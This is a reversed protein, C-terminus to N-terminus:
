KEEKAKLQKSIGELIKNGNKASAAWAHLSDLLNFNNSKSLTVLLTTGLVVEYSVEDFEIIKADLAKKLIAKNKTDDSKVRAVFAEPESRAFEKIQPHLVEWEEDQNWGMSAAFERGEPEKIDRAAELAARLKEIKDSTTQAKEKKSVIEFKVPVSADACPSGKREPSLWLVEYLDRDSAISSQLSFLGNFHMEGAGAVFCVAKTPKNDETWDEALVIDINKKSFPDRVRFQTRLQTKGFLVPLKARETPDPEPNSVGNLLQFTVVEAMEPIAEELEKSIKNYIGIQQM